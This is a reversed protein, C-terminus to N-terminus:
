RHESLVKATQLHVVMFRWMVSTQSTKQKNGRTHSRWLQTNTAKDSRLCICWALCIDSCSLTPRARSSWTLWLCVCVSACVLFYVNVFGIANSEQRWLKTLCLERLTFTTVSCDVQIFSSTFVFLGVHNWGDGKYYSRQLRLEIHRLNTLLKIDWVWPQTLQQWLTVQSMLNTEQIQDSGLLHLSSLVDWWM